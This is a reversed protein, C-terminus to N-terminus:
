IVVAVWNRVFVGHGASLTPRCPPQCFAGEAPTQGSAFSHLKRISFTGGHVLRNHDSSPFSVLSPVDGDGGDRCVDGHAPPDNSLFTVLLSCRRGRWGQVCRRTCPPRLQFFFSRFPIGDGGDRRVDGHAPHDYDNNSFRGFPSMAPCLTTM